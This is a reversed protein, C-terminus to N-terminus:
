GRASGTGPVKMRDAHAERFSKFRSMVSRVEALHGHPSGEQRCVAEYASLISYACRDRARLVFVPEDEPIHGHEVTVEGYKGGAAM